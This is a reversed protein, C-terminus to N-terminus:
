CHLRLSIHWLAQVNLIADCGSNCTPPQVISILDIELEQPALVEIDEPLSVCGQPDIAIITYTNAELGVIPNSANIPIPNTLSSYQYTFLSPDAGTVTLSIEGDSSNHCSINSGNYDSVIQPSVAFSTSELLQLRYNNMFMTQHWLPMGPGFIM